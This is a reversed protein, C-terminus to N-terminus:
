NIPVASAYFSFTGTAVYAVAYTINTGARARVTVTQQLFNTTATLALAPLVLTQAVGSDADTWGITATASGTGAATCSGYVPIQYLGDSPPVYLTTTPVAAVQGTLGTNAASVNSFITKSTNAGLVAGSSQFWYNSYGDLRLPAAATGIWAATSVVQCTTFGVVDYNNSNATWTMGARFACDHIHSYQLVSVYGSFETNEAMALEFRTPCSLIGRSRSKYFSLAHITGATMLSGDFSVSSSGTTGFTATVTGANSATAAKTMTVQTNSVIAQIYTDAPIGSGSVSQGPRLDTTSTLTTLATSGSVTTAGTQIANSYFSATLAPNGFVELDAFCHQQIPSSGVGLPDLWRVTGNLRTKSTYAEHTTWADAHGPMEQWHFGSRMGFPVPTTGPMLLLDIFHDVGPNPTWFNSPGSAFADGFTLTTAGTASANGSLTITTLGTIATITTGSPINNGYVLQGVFLLSTDTLGTVLASGSTTAAPQSASNSATLWAADSQGLQVPGLAINTIRRAWLDAVFYAGIAISLTVVGTTTAAASLTLVGSNASAGGPAYEIATIITGPPIGPGTVAQGVLSNAVYNVTVRNSLATTSARLWLPYDVSYSANYNTSTAAASLIVFPDPGATFSLNNGTALAPNSVKIHTADTIETILGYPLYQGNSTFCVQGVHMGATTSAGQFTVVNSGAVTSVGNVGSVFKQLTVGAGAITALAPIGPGSIPMGTMAFVYNNTASATANNSATVSTPGTISAITTGAPFNPGNISMGVLLNKTTQLGTITNALNVTTGSLFAAGITAGWQYVNVDGAVTIGRVSYSDSSPVYTGAPIIVIWDNAVEPYTLDPRPISAWAENLDTFTQVGYGPYAVPDNPFVTIETLSLGSPVFPHYAM